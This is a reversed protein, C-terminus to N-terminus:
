GTSQNQIVADMLHMNIRNREQIVLNSRRSRLTMSCMM